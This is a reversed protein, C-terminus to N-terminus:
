VFLRLIVRFKRCGSTLREQVSEQRSGIGEHFGKRGAIEIAQPETEPM